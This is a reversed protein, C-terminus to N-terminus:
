PLGRAALSAYGDWILKGGVLILLGYLLPYLREASIRRIFAVGAITSGIAVPMLAASTALTTRDLQGLAVFPVVKAWNMLAFFIASTGVFVDRPLRQPMVWIQFPPGGAQAIMSTFGAAVGALLGTAVGGRSAAPPGRRELWLRHAGFALCTLGVLLGILADSVEAAFVYGLYIGLAAGPLMIALVRRSWDARFSWVTVVDQAILIPLMIAAGQLPPVVLALLPLSLMGAGYFGGKSFGLLVVAPIAAAYFAPEAIM